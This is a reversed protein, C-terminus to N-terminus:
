NLHKLFSNQLLKYIFRTNEFMILFVITSININMGNMQM